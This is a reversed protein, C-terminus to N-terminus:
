VYNKVGVFEYFLSVVGGCVMPLTKANEIIKGKNLYYTEKDHKRQEILHRAKKIAYHELAGGGVTGHTNETTVIMKKGVEVPGEGEKEIATVIVMDVGKQQYQDILQYINTM